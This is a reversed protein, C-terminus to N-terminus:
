QTRSPDAWIVDQCFACRGALVIGVPSGDRTELECNRRGEGGTDNSILANLTMVPYIIRTSFPAQIAAAVKAPLCRELSFSWMRKKWKWLLMNRVRSAGEGRQETCYSQRIEKKCYSSVGSVNFMGCAPAGLSYKVTFNPTIGWELALKYIFANLGSFAALALQSGVVIQELDKPHAPKNERLINFILILHTISFSGITCLALGGNM